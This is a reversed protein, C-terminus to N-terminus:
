GNGGHLMGALIRDVERRRVDSRNTPEDGEQHGKAALPCADALDCAGTHIADVTERLSHIKDLNAASLTRGANSLVAAM